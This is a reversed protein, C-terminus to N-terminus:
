SLTQIQEEEYVVLQPGIHSPGPAGRHIARAQLARGGGRRSFIGKFKM